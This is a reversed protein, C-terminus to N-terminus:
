EMIIATTVPAVKNVKCGAVQTSAVMKGFSADRVMGRTKKSSM